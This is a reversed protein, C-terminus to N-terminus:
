PKVSSLSIANLPEVPPPGQQCTFNTFGADTAQQHIVKDTQLITLVQPCPYDSPAIVALTRGSIGIANFEFGDSDWQSAVAQRQRAANDINTWGAAAGVVLVFMLIFPKV